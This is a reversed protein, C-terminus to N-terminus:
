SCIDDGNTTESSFCALSLLSIRNWIQETMGHYDHGQRNRFVCFLHFLIVIGIKGEKENM